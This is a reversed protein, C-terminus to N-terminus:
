VELYWIADSNFIKNDLTIVDKSRIKEVIDNILIGVIEQGQENYVPLSIPVANGNLFVMQITYFKQEQQQPEPPAQQMQPIHQPQAIPQVVEREQQRINNVQEKLTPKQIEVEKVIPEPEKPAENKIVVTEEKKIPEVIPIEKQKKEYDSRLVMRGDVLMFKSDAMDIEEMTKIKQVEKMIKNKENNYMTAKDILKNMEEVKKQDKTKRKFMIRIKDKLM